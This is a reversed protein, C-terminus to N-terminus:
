SMIGCFLIDSNVKWYVDEIEQKSYTDILSVSLDFTSNIDVTITSLVKIELPRVDVLVDSVYRKDQFNTPVVVDFYIRCYNSLLTSLM